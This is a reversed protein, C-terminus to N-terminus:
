IEMKGIDRKKNRIVDKTIFELLQTSEIIEEPTLLPLVPQTVSLESAYAIFDVLEDKVQNNVPKIMGKVQCAIELDDVWLQKEVFDGKWTHGGQLIEVQRKKNQADAIWSVFLTGSTGCEHQLSFKAEHIKGNVWKINESEIKRIRGFFCMALDLDHIVKDVIIDDPIRDPHQQTRLFSYTQAAPRVHGLLTKIKISVPNYREVHGAMLRVGTMGAAEILEKMEEKTTVIPKEVFTHIGRRLSKLAITKHTNTPTAVILIDPQADELMQDVSDFGKLHPQQALCRRETDCVGCIQIKHLHDNIGWKYYNEIQGSALQELAMRHYNGMKGMGAIAIRIEPATLPILNM